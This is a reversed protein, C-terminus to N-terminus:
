RDVIKRVFRMVDSLVADDRACLGDTGVPPRPGTALSAKGRYFVRTANGENILRRKNQKVYFTEHCRRKM